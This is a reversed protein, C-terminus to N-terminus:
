GWLLKQRAQVFRKVFSKPFFLELLNRVRRAPSSKFYMEYYREDSVSDIKVYKPHVLPFSMSEVECDLRTDMDHTTSGEFGINKILNKNPVVSLGSNLYNSLLWQYGWITNQTGSSIDDLDKMVKTNVTKRNFLFQNLFGSKKLEPLSKLEFDFMEWSRRWSAWGWILPVSSFYYSETPVNQWGKHFNSGSVHMVRDDDKYRLLIEECFQFFSPDPVCDDELIIGYEEQSFFWSIASSVAQACGLNQERFLTFVQCNWAIDAALAQVAKVIETEGEKHARPGDVAFYVRSPTARRVRELVRQMSEPRNFGLLLVATNCKM